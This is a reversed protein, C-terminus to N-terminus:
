SVVPRITGAGGTRGPVHKRDPACRAPGPSCCRRGSSGWTGVYFGSEAEYEIGGQLAPKKDTQTFGRFVYDSTIGLNFSYKFEPKEDAIAPLSFASVALGAALMTKAFRM